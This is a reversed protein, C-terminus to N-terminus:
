AQQRKIAYMTQDAEEWAALLGSGPLRMAMGVSAEIGAERLADRARLLLTPFEGLPKPLTFTRTDNEATDGGAVEWAEGRRVFGRPAADLNPYVGLLDLAHIEVPRAPLELHGGARAVAYARVGGVQLASYQPPVQLGQGLFGRLVANLEATPGAEGARLAGFWDELARAQEPPVAEAPGEADLTPTSAGLSVWALYEKRDREMFQVLKTSDDVCLVVVGTALPDLTGTHGVRRTGLERRARAVVDHSSLHLPKDTALVPVPGLYGM